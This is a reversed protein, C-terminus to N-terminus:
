LEVFPLFDLETSLFLLEELKTPLRGLVGSSFIGFVKTFVSGIFWSCARGGIRGFPLPENVGLTLTQSAEIDQNCVQPDNVGPTQKQTQSKIQTGNNDITSNM